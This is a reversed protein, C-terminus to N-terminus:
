KVACSNLRQCCAKYNNRMRLLDRGGLTFVRKDVPTSPGRLLTIFSDPAISHSWHQRRTLLVTTTRTASRRSPSTSCASCVFIWTSTAPWRTSWRRGEASFGTGAQVYLMCHRSSHMFGHRWYPFESASTIRLGQTIRLTAEITYLSCTPGFFYDVLILKNHNTWYYTLMCTLFYSIARFDFIMRCCFKVTSSSYM